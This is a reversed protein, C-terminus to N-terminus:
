HYTLTVAVQTLGVCQALHARNQREDISFCMPIFLIDTLFNWWNSLKMSWTENQKMPPIFFLIINIGSPNTSNTIGNQM